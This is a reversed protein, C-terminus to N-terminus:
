VSLLAEFNKAIKDNREKAAKLGEVTQDLEHQYTYIEKISDDMDRNIDKLGNVVSTITSVINDFQSTYANLKARKKTLM